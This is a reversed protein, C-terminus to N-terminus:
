LFGFFVSFVLFYDTLFAKSNSFSNRAPPPTLSVSTPLCDFVTLTIATLPAMPFVVPPPRVTPLTTVALSIRLDPPGRQQTITVVPVQDRPDPFERPAPPTPGAPYRPIPRPRTTVTKPRRKPTPTPTSSKPEDRASRLTWCSTIDLPRNM